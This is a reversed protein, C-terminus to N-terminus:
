SKTAPCRCQALDHESCLSCDICHLLGCHWKYMIYLCFQLAFTLKSNCHALVFQQHLTCAENSYTFSCIHMQCGCMSRQSLPSGQMMLSIGISGVDARSASSSQLQQSIGLSKIHSILHKGASWPADHKICQQPYTLATAVLCFRNNFFLNPCVVICIYIYIQHFKVGKRERGLFNSRSHNNNVKSPEPAFYLPCCFASHYRATCATLLLLSVQCLWHLSWGAPQRHSVCSWATQLLHQYSTCRYGPRGEAQVIDVQRHPMLVRSHSQM